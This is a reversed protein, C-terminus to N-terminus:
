REVKETKKQISGRREQAKAADLVQQMKPDKFGIDLKYKHVLNIVKMKFKDDGTIQLQKGYKQKAMELAKLLAEDSANTIKLHNGKDIIKSQDNTDDLRYVVFGKKTLLPQYSVYLKHNTRSGLTNENERPKPPKTTRLTELAKADGKMAERMLYEKYTIQRYKSYVEKKEKREEERLRQLNKVYKQYHFSYLEKKMAGKLKRDTKIKQRQLKYAQSLKEKEKSYKNRIPEILEKKQERNYNMEKKYNEWFETKERGFQAKPKINIAMNKFEGFRKELKSKSLDRHVDSAKVFLKRKKDKIVVGNGRAIIELNYEALKTHLDKLTSKKDQLVEQIEEMAEDKIWSLLSKVGSHAEHNKIDRRTSGADGHDSEGTRRVRDGTRDGSRTFRINHRENGQLLMKIESLKPQQYVMNLGPLTPLNNISRTQIGRRTNRNNSQHIRSQDRRSQHDRKIRQKRSDHQKAGKKIKIEKHESKRSLEKIEAALKADIGHNDRKLKHKEELELAKKQLKIKSRYPDKRELTIPDVRNVAIHFHFNNTNVHSVTLRHHDQLGISKLLQEEIDRLVEKSPKEDEQFSVIIHMTKDAESDNISQAKEIFHINDLRNSYPCNTFTVDEVKDHHQKREDTLYNALGAFSGTGKSGVVKVIM